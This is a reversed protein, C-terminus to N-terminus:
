RRVALPPDELPQGEGEAQGAQEGAQPPAQRQGGRNAELKAEVAAHYRLQLKAQTYTRGDKERSETGEFRVIGPGLDIEAGPGGKLLRYCHGADMRATPGDAQGEPKLYHVRYFDVYGGHGDPVGYGICLGDSSRCLHRVKVLERQDYRFGNHEKPQLDGAVLSAVYTGQGGRSPFELEIAEGKALELVMDAQLVRGSVEGWVREYSRAGKPGRAVTYIPVEYLPNGDSDKKAVTSKLFVALDGDKALPENRASAPAPGGPPDAAVGAPPPQPDQAPRQDRAPHHREPTPRTAPM